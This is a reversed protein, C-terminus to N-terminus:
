STDGVAAKLPERLEGVMACAGLQGRLPPKKMVAFGAGELRSCRASASIASAVDKIKPGGLMPSPYCPLPNTDSSHHGLAPQIRCVDGLELETQATCLLRSCAVTHCAEAQLEACPTCPTQGHQPTLTPKPSSTISSLAKPRSGVLRRREHPARTSSLFRSKTAARTASQEAAIQANWGAATWTFRVYRITPSRRPPPYDGNAPVAWEWELARAPVTRCFQPM